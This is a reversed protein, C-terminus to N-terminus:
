PIPAKDEVILEVDIEPGEKADVITDLIVDANNEIPAALDPIPDDGLDTVTSSPAKPTGNVGTESATDSAAQEEEMHLPDASAAVPSVPPSNSQPPEVGMSDLSRSLQEVAPDFHDDGANQMVTDGEQDVQDPSSISMPNADSERPLEEADDPLLDSEVELQDAAETTTPSSPSKPGKVAKANRASSRIVPPVPPPRPILCNEPQYIIALYWHLSFRSTLSHGVLQPM